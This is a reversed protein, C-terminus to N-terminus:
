ACPPFTTVSVAELESKGAIMRVEGEMAGEVEGEVKEERVVLPLGVTM